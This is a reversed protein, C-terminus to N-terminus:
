HAPGPRPWNIISKVPGPRPQTQLVHARAPRPRSNTLGHHVSIALDGHHFIKYTITIKQQAAQPSHSSCMLFFM